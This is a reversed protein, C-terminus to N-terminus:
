WVKPNLVRVQVKHENSLGKAELDGLATALCRCLLAHLCM